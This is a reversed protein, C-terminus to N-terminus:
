QNTVFSIACIPFHIERQGSAPKINAWRRRRQDVMLGANTSLIMNETDEVHEALCRNLYRAAQEWFYNM